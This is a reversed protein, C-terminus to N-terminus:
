CGIIIIAFKMSMVATLEAAKSTSLLPLQLLSSLLLRNKHGPWGVVLALLQCQLKLFVSTMFLYTIQIKRLMNKKIIKYTSTTM